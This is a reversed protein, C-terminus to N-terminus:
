TLFFLGHLSVGISPPVYGPFWSHETCPRSARRLNTAETLTLTDHVYGGPNVYSALPGDVSMSYTLYVLLSTITIPSYLLDISATIYHHGVQFHTEEAHHRGSLPQLLARYIREPDTTGPDAETHSLSHLAATIQQHRGSTTATGVLLVFRCVLLCM